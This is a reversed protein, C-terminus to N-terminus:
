LGEGRYRRAIQSAFDQMVLRLTLPAMVEVAGGFGLLRDRAAEFTEFSLTVRTWGEADPEGAQDMGGRVHDGFYRPLLPELAPSVRAAVVFDSRFQETEACWQKWYSSLNFYGPRDFPQNLIEAQLIQAARYVRITEQGQGAQSADWSVQRGGVLYWVNTKSVLGYPAVVEDFTAGFELQYIIHLLSDEWVGQQLAALCPVAEEPQFWGSSDLHVRQRTRQEERRQTDPLAASLKLLAAKLEQGVGLQALPEPVALMALAQAESANLGTLDTRYNELLECGGGPGREVFVPVGATSLAEVDRYITRESVELEQALIKATLRGRTQLLILLSLLRDARMGDEM